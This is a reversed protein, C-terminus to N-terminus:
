LAFSLWQLFAECSVPVSLPRLAVRKQQCNELPWFSSFTYLRDRLARCQSTLLLLFSVSSAASNLICTSSQM